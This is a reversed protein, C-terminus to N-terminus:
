DRSGGHATYNAEANPRKPKARDARVRSQIGSRLYRIGVQYAHGVEQQPPVQSTRHRVRGDAGSTGPWQPAHSGTAAEVLLHRSLVPVVAGRHGVVYGYGSKGRM